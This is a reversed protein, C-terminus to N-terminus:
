KERKFVLYSYPVHTKDYIYVLRSDTMGLGVCEWGEDGFENLVKEFEEGTHTEGGLHQGVYLTKYEWKKM